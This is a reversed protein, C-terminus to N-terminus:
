NVPAVDVSQTAPALCSNSDCAQYRLTLRLNAAFKSHFKVRIDFEGALEGDPYNITEVNGGSVILRTPEVSADHPNLHYNEKVRCHVRLLGADWNPDLEVVEAALQGTSKPRAVDAEAAIKLNGRGRVYLMTAQVLASMGEGADAMQGAFASIIAAASDFDGLQMFAMAAAGNGSPLPSDTGIMQRVILDDASEDSFYLGGEPASFRRLMEAALDSAAQRRTPLALLAWTLFAFDDLLRPKKAGLLYDACKEAAKLYKPESLVEAAHALGRIMLANWSVLIKNDLRPQKRAQRIQYLIRRAKEMEPDTLAAPGEPLFLVNRDPAGDGHHPDAFNPGQDLGYARLFKEVDVKGTLAESVEQKTWLYNAGEKGDVEADLATFFGGSDATMERLIFDGIGRAILAFEEDRMQRFAESYVWLLMANDYLMIEFHPVLWKADTSYRHFGGGLQDRIGGHAMAKLSKTVMRMLGANPDQPLFMLILELLTERPFKPATGFGGQTEDFDSVSRDILERIWFGDIEFARGSHRPRSLQRLIGVVNEASENVEARRNGFAEQVASLIKPFGPRGYMDTPPFYTGGYFPKLDPTLFVSMPWGGQRSIVQVATMYLQDIDPREERDVKINVFGQNMQAAIPEDEFCQREMVHCWYCTSYGVSLFIPKNERRSKELAEKGWPYWDVPNHAHQLLYPSSENALRNENRQEAM